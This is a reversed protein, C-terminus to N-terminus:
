VKDTRGTLYDLSVDFYDAMRVLGSLKPEKEDYEYYQYTRTTINLKEAVEKQSLHKSTRLQVLRESFLSM